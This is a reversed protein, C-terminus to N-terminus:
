PVAPVFTSHLWQHHIRQHFDLDINVLQFNTGRDGPATEVAQDEARWAFGGGIEEGQGSGCGSCFIFRPWAFQCFFDQSSHSEFGRPKGSRNRGYFWWVSTQTGSLSRFVAGQLGFNTSLQPPLPLLLVYKVVRGDERSRHATIM